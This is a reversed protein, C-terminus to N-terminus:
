KKSLTVFPVRKKASSSTSTSTNNASDENAPTLPVRKKEEGGNLTVFPVKKKAEPAVTPSNSSLEAPVTDELVLNLDNEDIKENKSKPSSITILQFKAPNPKGGEKVSRIKINAPSCVGEKNLPIGDKSVPIDVDDDDDLDMCDNVSENLENLSENIDILENYETGIEDKNFKIVSCFGDTSAM